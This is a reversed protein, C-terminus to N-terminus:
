RLHSRTWLKWIRTDEWLTETNLPFKVRFDLV